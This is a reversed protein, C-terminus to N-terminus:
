AKDMDPFLWKTLARWQDISLEEARVQPSLHLQEFFPRLKEDIANGGLVKLNSILIKRRQAFGAKVVKLFDKRSGEWDTRKSFSLVRSAVRPPPYFDKPGAELVFQITWFNQAIVSLLGYAESRPKAVIREAVEKQFMLVMGKLPKEQISRDIVISSSIQYPLNSVLVTQDPKEVRNWDWKLADGEIVNFNKQRWYEAFSRDLELLTLPCTLATLGDTLSGLGPGVEFLTQPGHARVATVIKEIALKSVLFNQGLSKKPSLGLSELKAMIENTIYM